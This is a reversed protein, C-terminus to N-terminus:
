NEETEVDEMHVRAGGDPLREVEVKMLVDKPEDFTMRKLGCECPLGFGDRWSEDGHCFPCNPDFHYHCHISQAKIYHGM